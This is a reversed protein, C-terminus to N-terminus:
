DHKCFHRFLKEIGTPGDREERYLMECNGEDNCGLRAGKKAISGPQGAESVRRM